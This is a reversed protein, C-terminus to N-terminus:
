FLKIEVRMLKKFELLFIQIPKLAKRLKRLQFNLFHNRQRFGYEKVKKKLQDKM